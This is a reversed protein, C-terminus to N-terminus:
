SNMQIIQSRTSKVSRTAPNILFLAPTLVHCATMKKEAEQSSLYLSNSKRHSKRFIQDIKSGSTIANGAFLIQLNAPFISAQSM